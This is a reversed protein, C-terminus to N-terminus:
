WTRAQVSLLVWKGDRKEFNMTSELRWVNRIEYVKADVENKEILVANNGNIQINQEVLKTSYYNMQGDKIQNLWEDKPQRYGTIHIQYYDDILLEDLKEINKEQSYKRLKIAIDKIEEEDKKNNESSSIYKKSNNTNNTKGCGPLSFIIISLVLFIRNIVM